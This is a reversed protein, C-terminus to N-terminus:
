NITGGTMIRFKSKNNWIECLLNFNKDPNLMLRALEDIEELDANNLKFNKDRLYKPYHLYIIENNMLCHFDYFLATTLM